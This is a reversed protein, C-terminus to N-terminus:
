QEYETSVFRVGRFTIDMAIELTFNYTQPSEVKVPSSIAVYLLPLFAQSQVFAQPSLTAQYTGKEIINTASLYTSFYGTNNASLTRQSASGFSAIYGFSLPEGSQQGTRDWAYVMTLRGSTASVQFTPFGNVRVSNLKFQDFMSAWATYQPNRTLIDLFGVKAVGANSEAPITVTLPYNLKVVFRGTDRQGRAGFYASRRYGRYGAYRRSSRGRYASRRVRRRVWPMRRNTSTHPPELIRSEPSPTPAPALHVTISVRRPGPEALRPPGPSHVQEPRGAVRRLQSAQPATSVRGPSGSRTGRVGEVEKGLSGRASAREAKARKAREVSTVPKNPPRQPLQHAARGM